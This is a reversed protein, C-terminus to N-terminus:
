LAVEEVRPVRTSGAAPVPLDLSFTSGAGETSSVSVTGGHGEVIAKVITLGLGVGPIHRETASSARFFRQFLREQEDHAIGIGTDTVEIRVDDGVRAARVTVTGGDPTYKLANSILNDVAQGLRDGDARLLPLRETAELELVLGNSEARPRAAEVANALVQRVDTQQWDLRLSGAEFQAVFLLDGVLRGLRRANRGIVSLFQRRMAPDDIENEDEELLLDLYGQISTLPTRLEHSVLAVFEDRLREAQKRETVDHMATVAGMKAGREDFFAQGNAIVTRPERGPVAVVFEQERVVEGRLARSLPTEDVAMPTTGDAEFLEYREQWTGLEIGETVGVALKRTSENTLSLRGDADCAVIAEQLSGLLAAQFEREKRLAEVAEAHATVDRFVTVAGTAAGNEDLIPSSTYEVRFSSGDRRWYRELEGEAKRREGHLLSLHVPCEERPYPTGDARTHHMLAHADRGILENVRWGTLREATANAFTIRGDPDIGLIGEGASHLISAHARELRALAEEARKRETVDHLTGSFGIIRDAADYALRVRAEVWRVDGDRTVYRHQVRGSPLGAAVLEGYREAVAARDDAHAFELSSQGLAEGVDFGTMTSWMGSLFMWRGDADSEFLVEDVSDLVRRYREESERLALESAAREADQLQLSEAMGNFAAALEALEAHGSTAMRAGREGRALRRAAVVAHRIPVVVGAILAVVLLLALTVFVVSAAIGVARARRSARRAAATRAVAFASQHARLRRFRARLEDVMTKGHAVAAVMQARTLHPASRVFPEGYGTIYADIARRLDAIERANQPAIRALQRMRAPLLARSRQWPELFAPEDTLAYGRLGTELDIVHRQADNTAQLVRIAASESNLARARAADNVFNTAALLAVLVTAVVGAAMAHAILSARVTSNRPFLALPSLRM